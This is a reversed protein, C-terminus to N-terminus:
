INEHNIVPQAYMNIFMQKQLEANGEGITKVLDHLLENFKQRSAEDVKDAYKTEGRLMDAALYNYPFLKYNSHIEKDIADTLLKLNANTNDSDGIVKAVEIPTGFSFHVRGKPRILGLAMSMLDDKKTKQFGGDVEKKYLEEVKSIGCPEREYSISLPVINLEEFGSVFDKSNSLNFMKLLAQQTQDNGDKTRGERQAIWVSIQEKSIRERIYASMKKSAVLLERAPLNRKVEFAGNLKVLHLIWDYILLNDGIAIETTDLGSKAMLYNMIASDLIIDRHNSIFLYGKSQDLKELGSSTVGSTTRDIIWQEILPCIFKMQFEYRTQVQSLMASTAEVKAKDGNLVHYMVGIFAEDKLLKQIYDNVESDHYPRIDNYTGM